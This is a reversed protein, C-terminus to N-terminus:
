LVCVCDLAHPYRLLSVMSTEKSKDATSFPTGGRPKSTSSLQRLVKALVRSGQRRGDATLTRVNLEDHLGFRKARHPKNFSGSGDFEDGDESGDDDDDDDDDSGDNLSEDHFNPPVPEYELSPYAAPGPSLFLDKPIGATADHGLSGFTHVTNSKIM